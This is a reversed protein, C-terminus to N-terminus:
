RRSGRTELRHKRKRWRQKCDEANLDKALVWTPKWEVMFERGNAGQREGMIGNILWDGDPVTASQANDFPRKMVRMRKRSVKHHADPVDKAESRLGRRTHPRWRPREVPKSSASLSRARKVTPKNGLSREEPRNANAMGETWYDLTHEKEETAIPEFPSLCSCESQDGLVLEPEQQSQLVTKVLNVQSMKCGDDNPPKTSSELM